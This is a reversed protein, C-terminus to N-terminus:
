VRWYTKSQIKRNLYLNSSHHKGLDKRLKELHLLPRKVEM